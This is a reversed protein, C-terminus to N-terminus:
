YDCIDAKLMQRSRTVILPVIAIGNCLLFAVFSLEDFYKLYLGKPYLSIHNFLYIALMTIGTGAVFALLDILLLEGVIKGVIRKNSIGIAKYVSFEFQRKQYMGVFAANITVALIIALFFVVFIYIQFFMEFQPEVQERIGINIHIGKEGEVKERLGYVFDRLKSGKIDNGIVICGNQEEEEDAIFYVTYGDEQTLADLQFESYMQKDFNKDIVDGLKLGKNKAFKESMVMSGPELVSFDCTTGMCECYKKFDEVTRFTIAYNGNEFGMITKWGFGNYVGLEVVTVEESQKAEKLFRKYEDANGDSENATVTIMKEDYRFPLEWNHYTNTIYLGGIYVGFGLMLMVMLLASRGKNEKIFYVPSFSKM